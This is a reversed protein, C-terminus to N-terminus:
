PQKKGVVIEEIGWPLWRNVEYQRFQAYGPLLSAGVVYTDREVWWFSKEPTMKYAENYLYLGNFELGGDIDTPPIRDQKMMTNLAQWRVRNWALYDHTAGVSFLWYAAYLLM